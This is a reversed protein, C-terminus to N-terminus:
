ERARKVQGRYKQADVEQYHRRRSGTTPHDAPLFTKIRGDGPSFVLTVLQGEIRVVRTDAGDPDRRLIMGEGSKVREEILRLDQWTIVIGYRSLAREIVHAALNDSKM